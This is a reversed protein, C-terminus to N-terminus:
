LRTVTTANSTTIPDDFCAFLSLSLVSLSLSLSMSWNQFSFSLCWVFLCFLSVFRWLYFRAKKVRMLWFLLFLFLFTVWEERIRSGTRPRVVRRLPQDKSRHTYQHYGKSRKKIKTDRKRRGLIKEWATTTRKSRARSRFFLACWKGFLPSFSRRSSRKRDCIANRRHSWWGHDSKDIIFIIRQKEERRSHLYLGRIEGEEKYRSM